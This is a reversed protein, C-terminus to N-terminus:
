FNFQVQCYSQSVQGSCLSVGGQLIVSQNAVDGDAFEDGHDASGDTRFKLIFIQEATITQIVPFPHLLLEFGSPIDGMSYTDYVFLM